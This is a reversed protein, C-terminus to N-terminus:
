DSASFRSLMKLPVVGPMTMMSKPVVGGAAADFGADTDSGFCVSVPGSALVPAAASALEVPAAAACGAAAGLKKLARGGGLPLDSCDARRKFAGSWPIVMGVALVVDCGGASGAAM